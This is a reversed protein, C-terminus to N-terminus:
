CGAAFYPGSGPAGLRKLLARLSTWVVRLVKLM